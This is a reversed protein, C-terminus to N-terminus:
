LTMFFVQRDANETKAKAKNAIACIGFDASQWIAYPDIKAAPQWIDHQWVWSGIGCQGSILAWAGRSKIDAEAGMRSTPRVGSWKTCVDESCGREIQDVMTAPRESVIANTRIPGGSGERAGGDSM